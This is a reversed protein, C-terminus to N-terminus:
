KYKDLLGKLKKEVKDRAKDKARQEKKDLEDRALNFQQELRAKRMAIDNKVVSKHAKLKAEAEDIPQRAQLYIKDKLQKQFDAIRRSMHEKMNAQLRNDLDSSIRTSYKAFTGALKGYVNFDRTQNIASLFMMALENGGAQNNYKISHIHAKFDAKIRDQEREAVLTVDSKAKDLYISMDDKDILKYQNLTYNRMTFNIQDRAMAPNIHNFSGTVLISGIGPMKDGAFHLTVPKRTINQENTIDMIRGSFSGQQTEVSARVLRILFEPAPRYEKFRVDLGKHRAAPPPAADGSIDVYALWPALKKYWEMAMATYQRAEGGFLLQSVNGIGSASAAYKGALRDYEQRPSNQLATYEKDLRNMDGSIQRQSQDVLDIDAKISNKIAKLDKIAASLQAPDKTDTHKIAEIRKKYDDAQKEGPLAQKIKDWNQQSSSVDAKFAEAQKITKIEERALIQDVNPITIDPLKFDKDKEKTPKAPEAPKPPTKLAGSKKRPTNLRVGDVRMENILVKRRLLNLGDLNFSIHQIDVINQLPQEPNTVQLRKLQMGLPSFRFEASDLDVKAGMMRTGTYEISGKIMSDVFLIFFLVLLVLAVAFGILGKWRIWKKM